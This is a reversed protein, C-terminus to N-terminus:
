ADHGRRVRPDVLVAREDIRGDRTSAVAPPRAAAEARGRFLTDPAPVARSRSTPTSGQRTSMPPGRAARPLLAKIESAFVFREADAYWFLPLIGMRDRVLWCNAPRRRRAPRVRVAGRAADVARSGRAACCRWCCRPTATPASRTTSSRRPAAPLEPDRRQVHPPVRGDATAMPQHSGAPDIIALRRHGFGVPGCAWFAATRRSRPAGAAAVDRRGAGASRTRRRVPPRRRDRVCAAGRGRVAVHALAAQADWTSGEVRARREAPTSRGGGDLAVRVAKM